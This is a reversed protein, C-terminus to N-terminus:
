VSERCNRIQRGISDHGKYHVWQQRDVIKASGLLETSRVGVVGHSCRSLAASQLESELRVFYALAISEGHVSGLILMKMLVRWGTMPVVGLGVNVIRVTVILAADVFLKLGGFYGRSALAGRGCVGWRRNVDM